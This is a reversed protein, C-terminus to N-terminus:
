YSGVIWAYQPKSIIKEVVREIYHSSSQCNRQFSLLSLLMSANKLNAVLMFSMFYGEYCRKKKKKILLTTYIDFLTLAGSLVHSTYVPFGFSAWLIFEM